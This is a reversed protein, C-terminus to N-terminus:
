VRSIGGIKLIAGTPNTKSPIEELDFRWNAKAETIEQLFRDGKPFIATGSPSLHMSAFELLRDLSALARATLIDAELGNTEEIRQTIVNANLELDRIVTRLFTCKRIDSEVLTFRTEPSDKKAIIALVLAPFGGGSGLDVWHCPNEPQFQYIQASDHFHRQWLVDVTSKSVLNIAPNWKQLLTAYDDLLTMTERSVDFEAQFADRHDM